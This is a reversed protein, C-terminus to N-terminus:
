FFNIIFIIKYAYQCSKWLKFKRTCLKKWFNQRGILCALVKPVSDVLGVAFNVQGPSDSLLEQTHQAYGLNKIIIM